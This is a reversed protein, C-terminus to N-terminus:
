QSTTAEHNYLMEDLQDRLVSAVEESITLQEKYLEVMALLNATNSGLSPTSLSPNTSSSHIQLISDKSQQLEKQM